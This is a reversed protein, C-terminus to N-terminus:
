RGAGANSIKEHIWGQVARESWRSFRRSAKIPAPFEGRKVAAYIWSEGRTTLHKVQNIDIFRDVGPRLTEDLSM